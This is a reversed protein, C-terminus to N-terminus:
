CSANVRMRRGRALLVGRRRDEPDNGRPIRCAYAVQESRAAFATNGRRRPRSDSAREPERGRAVWNLSAGPHTKPRTSMMGCREPQQRVDCCHSQWYPLERRRGDQCIRPGGGVNSCVRPSEALQKAPGLGARVSTILRQGTSTCFYWQSEFPMPIATLDHCGARLHIAQRLKRGIAHIWPPMSNRRHSRPM